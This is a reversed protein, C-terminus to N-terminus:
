KIVKIMCLYPSAIILSKYVRTYEVNIRLFRPYLEILISITALQLHSVRFALEKRNFFIASLMERYRSGTELVDRRIAFPQTAKM